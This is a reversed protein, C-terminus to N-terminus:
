RLFLSWIVVLVVILDLIFTIWDIKTSIRKLMLEAEKPYQAILLMKFILISLFLGLVFQLITMEQLIFYGFILVIILITVPLIWRSKGKIIKGLSTYWKKYKMTPIVIAMMADILSLVAVIIALSELQTMKIKVLNGSDM